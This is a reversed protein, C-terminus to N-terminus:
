QAYLAHHLYRAPIAHVVPEYIRCGDQPVGGGRRSYASDMRAQNYDYADQLRSLRSPTGTNQNTVTTMM